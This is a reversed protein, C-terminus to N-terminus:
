RGGLMAMQLLPALSGFPDKPGLLMPEMYQTRMSGGFGRGLDGLAGAGMNMLNGMGHLGSMTTAYHQGGLGGIQGLAQLRQFANADGTAGYGLAAQKLENLATQRTGRGGQDSLLSILPAAFSALNSISRASKMEGVEKLQRRRLSDDRKMGKLMRQKLELKFPADAKYDALLLRQQEANLRNSEDMLALTQPPYQQGARIEVPPVHRPESRFGNMMGVGLGGLLMGLPISM